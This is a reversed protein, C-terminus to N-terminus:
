VPLQFVECALKGVSFELLVRQIDYMDYGLTIRVCEVPETGQKFEKEEEPRDQREEKRRM